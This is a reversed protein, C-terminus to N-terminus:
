VRGWEGVAIVWRSYRSTWKKKLNKFAIVSQGDGLGIFIEAAPDSNRELHAMIKVFDDYSKTDTSMLPELIDFETPGGACGFPQMRYTLTPTHLYDTPAVPTVSVLILM